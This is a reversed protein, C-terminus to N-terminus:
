LPQRMARAFEVTVQATEAVPAGRPADSPGHLLAVIGFTSPEAWICVSASTGQACKMRLNEAGQPNQEVATGLHWPSRESLEQMLTDVTHEPDTLTGWGGAFSVAKDGAGPAPRGTTSYQTSIQNGYTIRYTRRDRDPINTTEPTGVRKFQGVTAPATLRYRTNDQAPPQDGNDGSDGNDGNDGNDGGTTGGSDAVQKDDDKKDDDKTLFFFAGGAILAVAVVAAIVIGVVKGTGGGGPPPPPVQGPYQAPQQGYPAGGPFQPPQPPHGYGGGGQPPQQGHPGQPPPGPPPQPFSM